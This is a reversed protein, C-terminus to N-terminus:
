STKEAKNKFYIHMVELEADLGLGNVSNLFDRLAEEAPKHSRMFKTEGDLTFQIETLLAEPLADPDSEAASSAARLADSYSKVMVFPGSGVSKGYSYKIYNVESGVSSGEQVCQELDQYRHYPVHAYLYERGAVTCVVMENTHSNYFVDKVWDSAVSGVVSSLRHTYKFAKKDTTM